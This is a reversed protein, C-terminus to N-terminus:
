VLRTKCVYTTQICLIYLSLLTLTRCLRVVCLWLDLRTQRHDQFAHFMEFM